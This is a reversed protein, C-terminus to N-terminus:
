SFQPNQAGYHVDYKRLEDNAQMVLLWGLTTASMNYEKALQTHGSGCRWMVYLAEFTDKDISVAISTRARIEPLAYLVGDDKIFHKRVIAM